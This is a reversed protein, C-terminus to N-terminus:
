GLVMIVDLMGCVCGAAGLLVVCDVICCKVCCCYRGELWEETSEDVQVVSHM